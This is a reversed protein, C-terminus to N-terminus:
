RERFLSYIYFVNNNKEPVVLNDGDKINLLGIEEDGILDVVIRGNPKTDKIEKVLNIIPTLDFNDINMWKLYKEKAESM